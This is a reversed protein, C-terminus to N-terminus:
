GNLHPFDEPCAVVTGRRYNGGEHASYHCSSCLIACNEVSNTGGFKIHLIHHAHASEGFKHQQRSEIDLGVIREGCSACRFKQRVLALQKTAISFEHERKM